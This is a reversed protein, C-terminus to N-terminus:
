PYTPRQKMFKFFELWNISKGHVSTQGSDWILETPTIRLDGTHTNGDRIELELGKPTLTMSATNLDKIKIKM